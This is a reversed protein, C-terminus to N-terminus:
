VFVFPEHRVEIATTGSVRIRYLQTSPSLASTLRTTAAAAVHIRKYTTICASIIIFHTYIVTTKYEGTYIYIYIADRLFCPSLLLFFKFFRDSIRTHTHTHVYTNIYRYTTYKCLLRARPRPYRGYLAWHLFVHGVRNSDRRSFCRKGSLARLLSVIKNKHKGRVGCATTATTAACVRRSPERSDNGGRRGVPRSQDHVIGIIFSVSDLRRRRRRWSVTSVFLLKLTVASSKRRDTPASARRCLKFKWTLSERPFHRRGFRGKNEVNRESRAGGTRFIM